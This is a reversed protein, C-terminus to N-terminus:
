QRNSRIIENLSIDPHRYRAKPNLEGRRLVIAKQPCNQICALCFECDGSCVVGNGTFEFNGRPCVRSCIGCGVCDEQNIRLLQQATVPYLPPVFTLVQEARKQEEETLAPIYHKNEEVESVAKALQEDEKKDIKMQENMDFVPLYNDVMKITTIYHFQTGQEKAFKDWTEVVNCDYNGFTIISFLYPAKLKVEQIFRKVMPPADARYDPFVLGIEDAEFFREEGKLVQPISLLEGTFKQAAYLSNGTATFYFLLRKRPKPSCSTFLASSGLPTVAMGALGLGLRKLAERRTIHNNSM